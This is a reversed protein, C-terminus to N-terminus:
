STKWSLVSMPVEPVISIDVCFMPQGQGVLCEVRAMVIYREIPCSSGRRQNAAVVDDLADKVNIVKSCVVKCWLTTYRTGVIVLFGNRM